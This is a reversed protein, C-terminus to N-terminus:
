DITKYFATTDIDGFVERLLQVSAWRDEQIEGDRASMLVVDKSFDCLATFQHNPQVMGQDYFYNSLWTYLMTTAILGLMKDNVKFTSYDASITHEESTQLSIVGYGQGDCIVEYQSGNYEPSLANLFSLFQTEIYILSQPAIGLNAFYQGFPIVQLGEPISNHQLSSTAHSQMPLNM